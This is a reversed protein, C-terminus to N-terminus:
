TSANTTALARKVRVMIAGRRHSLRQRETYWANRKECVGCLPAPYEAIGVTRHICEVGNTEYDDQDAFDSKSRALILCTHTKMYENRESRIEKDRLKLAFYERMLEEVKTM